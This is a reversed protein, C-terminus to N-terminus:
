ANGKSKKGGRAVTKSGAKAESKKAAAADTNVDVPGDLM